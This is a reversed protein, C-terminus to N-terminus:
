QQQIICNLFFIFSLYPLCLNNNLKLPSYSHSHHHFLTLMDCDQWSIDGQYLCLLLHVLFTEIYELNEGALDPTYTASFGYLTVMHDLLWNNVNNLDLTLTVKEVNEVNKAIVDIWYQSGTPVLAADTQPKIWINADNNEANM